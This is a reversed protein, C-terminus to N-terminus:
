EVIELHAKWGFRASVMMVITRLAKITNGKRGIVKGIEDSNVRIEISLKQDEESCKVDVNEPYDVLNKVLYEVFNKM